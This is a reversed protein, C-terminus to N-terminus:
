EREEMNEYCYLEVLGFFFGFIVMMKTKYTHQSWVLEICLIMKKKCVVVNKESYNFKLGMGLVLDINATIVLL